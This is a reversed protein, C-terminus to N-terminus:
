NLLWWWSVSLLSETRADNANENEASMEKSRRTMMTVVARNATKREDRRVALRTEKGRYRLFREDIWCQRQGSVFFRRSVRRMEYRSKNQVTAKLRFFSPPASLILSIPVLFALLNRSGNTKGGQSNRKIDKPEWSPAEAYFFKLGRQIFKLALNLTLMNSTRQRKSDTFQTSANISTIRLSIPWICFNFFIPLYPTLFLLLPLYYSATDTGIVTITEINHPLGIVM